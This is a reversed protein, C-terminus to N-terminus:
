ILFVFLRLALAVLLFSFLFKYLCPIKPSKIFESFDKEEFFLQNTYFEKIKQYEAKNEAMEKVFILWIIVLSLIFIVLFLIGKETTSFFLKNLLNDSEKKRVEGYIFLAISSGWGLFKLHLSQYSKQKRESLKLFDDKLMNVQTFYKDTEEKIIRNFASKAKYLDGESLDFSKKRVIIERIIKLRTRLNEKSNVIWSYTKVLNFAQFEDFSIKKTTTEKEEMEVKFTFHNDEYETINSLFLLIYLYQIFEVKKSKNYEEFHKVSISLDQKQLGNINNEAIVQDFLEVEKSFNNLKEFQNNKYILLNSDFRKVKFKDIIKSFRSCENIYKEELFLLNPHNFLENEETFSDLIEPYGDDFQFSTNIFSGKIEM